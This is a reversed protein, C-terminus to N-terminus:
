VHARGIEDILIFNPRSVAWLGVVVYSATASTSGFTSDVSIALSRRQPLKELAIRHWKRPFIGGEEDIPSQDHRGSYMLSGLVKRAERDEAEGHRSPQIYDGPFREIIKGSRPFKVQTYIKARTPLKIIEWDGENLSDLIVGSVDKKHTRQQVVLIAATKASNRRGFAYDRFRKETKKRDKESEAKEPNNADDFILIDGGVGTVSGDFGRAVMQGRYNNAFESIRNKVQQSTDRTSGSSLIIRGLTIRQYWYSKILSRRLDNHDNALLGSYSMCLFRRWPHDIWDWSPFCVSCEISKLSRPMINIVVKQLEGKSIAELYEAILELHWNDELDRSPELVDWAGKLFHHLYRRQLRERKTLPKLSTDILAQDLLAIRKNLQRKNTRM